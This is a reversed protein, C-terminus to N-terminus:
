LEDDDSSLSLNKRRSKISKKSCKPKQIKQASSSPEFQLVNIFKTLLEKISQLSEREYHQSEKFITNTKNDYSKVAQDQNKETM